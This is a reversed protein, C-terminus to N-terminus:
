NEGTSEFEARREALAAAIEMQMSSGAGFAVALLAALDMIDQEDRLRAIRRVPMLAAIDDAHIM